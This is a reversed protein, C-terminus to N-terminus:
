EPEETSLWSRLSEGYASTQPDAVDALVHEALDPQDGFVDSASLPDPAQAELLNPIFTGVLLERLEGSGQELATRFMSRALRARQPAPLEDTLTADEYASLLYTERAEALTQPDEAIQMLANFRDASGVVADRTRAWIYRALLAGGEARHRAAEALLADPALGRDELSIALQLDALVIEAPVLEDCHEDTLAERLDRSGGDCFAVLETGPTTSVHAWIGYYDLLPGDETGREVVQLEVIDGPSADLSGKLIQLVRVGITDYREALGGDVPLWDGLEESVVEIHLIQESELVESLVAVSTM